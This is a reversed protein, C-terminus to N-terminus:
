SHKWDLGNTRTEREGVEYPSAASRGLGWFVTVRANFLKLYEDNPMATGKWFTHLAKDGQVLAWTDQLHKEVGCMIEWILMPLGIGDQKTGFDEFNDLSKLEKTVQPLCRATFLYFLQMNEEKGHKKTKNKEAYNMKWEYFDSDYTDM